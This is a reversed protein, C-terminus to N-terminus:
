AGGHGRARGSAAEKVRRWRVPGAAEEEEEPQQEGEREQEQQQQEREGRCRRRGPECLPPVPRACVDAGAPAPVAGAAGAAATGATGGLEGRGRREREREREKDAGRKTRPPSLSCGRSPPLGTTGSGGSRCLGTPPHTPPPSSPPCPRPPTFACRETTLPHIVESDAAESWKGKTRVGPFKDHPFKDDKLHHFTKIQM